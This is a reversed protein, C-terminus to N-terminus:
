EDQKDHDDGSTGFGLLDDGIWTAIDGRFVRSQNPFYTAHSTSYAAAGSDSHAAITTVNSDVYLLQYILVERIPWQLLTILNKKNIVVDSAHGGRLMLLSLSCHGVIYIAPGNFFARLYIAAAHGQM